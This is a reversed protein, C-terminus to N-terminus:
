IRMPMTGENERSLGRRHPQAPVPEDARPIGSRGAVKECDNHLSSEDDNVLVLATIGTSRVRNQGFICTRESM